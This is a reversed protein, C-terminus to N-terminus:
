KARKAHVHFRIQVRGRLVKRGAHHFSVSATAYVGERTRALGRLRRPLELEIAVRGGRKASARAQVLQKAALPKSGPEAAVKTRLKGAAPVGAVIRVGGDPLSFASLTLKWPTKKQWPAPGPPVVSGGPPGSELQDALLFVDSAENSDEAVLNSATSAFAIRNGGLTPATAGLGEQASTEPNPLASFSPEDQGGLGHTLRQMAETQLDVFYLEVMGMSAPPATILNPPALPFRQRATAFAVQRGSGSLAVDFVHGTLSIRGLANVTGVPDAPDVVTERTIQRLAQARSLGPTMDVLFANAAETPNGILAVIRGDASLQPVGNIGKTVGLWGQFGNMDTNKTTMDPFPDAAGDGAVIRRTPASSGAAVRRWLPEDYPRPAEAIRKAEAPLLPVQAALNTGLWAVTTGDASIAAGRLLFPEANAVLLAGGAVPKGTMAGTEPDREVSVLTTTDADLDRVAVQLRPTGPGALDSEATTVFVVKRGDASLAVRASADSGSGVGAYTLGCPSATAPDCGDRASALEYSPVPGALDAVYVDASSAALDNAPDLRAQTTFSVYRGDASISPATARLQSVNPDYASVGVVRLTDGTTLDKLFIGDFGGIVGRFALYRGDASLDPSSASDAPQGAGKSVLEIPGLEAAAPGAAALAFSLALLAAVLARRATRV